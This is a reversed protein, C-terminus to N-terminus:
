SGFVIVAVVALAGGIAGGVITGIAEWFGM